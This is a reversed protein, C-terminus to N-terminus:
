HNIVYILGVTAVKKKGALRMTLRDRQQQKQLSTPNLCFRSQSFRSKTVVPNQCFPNLCFGKKAGVSNQCFPNLCIHSQIFLKTFWSSEPLIPQPLIPKNFCILLLHFFFLKQCRRELRTMIILKRYLVLHSFAILCFGILCSM